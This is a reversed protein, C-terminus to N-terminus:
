SRPSILSPPWKGPLTARVWAEGEGVRGVAKAPPPHLPRAALVAQERGGCPTSGGGKLPLPPSPPLQRPSPYSGYLPTAATSPACLDGGERDLGARRGQDVEGELPSTFRAHPYAEDDM